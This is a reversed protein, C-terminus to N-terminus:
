PKLPPMGLLRRIKNVVEFMEPLIEGPANRIANGTIVHPPTHGMGLKEVVGEYRAKGRGATEAIVKRVFEPMRGSIAALPSPLLLYSEIEKESWVHSKPDPFGKAALYAIKENRNADGDLLVFPEGRIRFRVLADRLTAAWHVIEKWGGGEARVPLVKDKLDAYEWLPELAQYDGRGELIVLVQPARGLMELLATRDLGMKEWIVYPEVKQLPTAEAKPGAKDIFVAREAGFQGLITESHTTLIFQKGESEAARKIVACLAKQAAPHLHNEPEEIIITSNPQAFHVAALLVLADKIGSSIQWLNYKTPDGAFRLSVTAASPSLVPTEILEIEPLVARAIEEYADFRERDNNYHYHLVTALDAGTTETMTKPSIGSQFSVQRFPDIHVMNNFLDFVPSLEPAPPGPINLLKFYGGASVQHVAGSRGYRYHVAGGDRRAEFTFNGLATKEETLDYRSFSVSYHIPGHEPLQIGLELSVTSGVQHRSVVREFGQRAQLVDVLRAVMGEKLFMLADIVNSKGANNPGMLVTVDPLFDVTVDQLLRFNRAQLRQLSM